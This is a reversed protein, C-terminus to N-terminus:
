RRLQICPQHAAIIANMERPLYAAVRFGPVAGLQKAAGGQMRQEQPLGACQGAARFSRNEVDVRLRGAEGPAGTREREEDPNAQMAFLAEFDPLQEQRARFVLARL